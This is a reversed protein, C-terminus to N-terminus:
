NGGRIRVRLKVPSGELDFEDRLQHELYRLWSTPLRRNAFLTITPPDTAGQVGYLIKGQPSPHKIQAKNIAENLIATPIRRQYADKAKEILQPLKLVGRGYLASISILPSYGVFALEDEVEKRMALKEDVSLLDWKNCVIVIPSGSNDIREALRQDQHTVGQTSDIVFLVIDSEDVAKLARVVSYHETGTDIKSKRRMGATDLLKWTNGGFEVLTDVTDRTTGPMDHVIAREQGALRNFLTSKGVNPRGVIAVKLIQDTVEPEDETKEQSDGDSVEDAQVQNKKLVDVIQDLLDGTGRGHIASVLVPQGLGLKSILWADAEQNLSDVKNAIPIVPKKVRKVIKAFQLDEDTIGVTGDTVMLILDSNDMAVQVQGSVKQDLASGLQLWGGTDVVKFSYGSWQVDREIRDRTVGPLHEVIAQRSGCMRNVLTSKGVNPRGVIVVKGLNITM